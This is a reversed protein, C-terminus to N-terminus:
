ELNIIKKMKLDKSVKENKKNNNKCQILYPLTYEILNLIIFKSLTLNIM